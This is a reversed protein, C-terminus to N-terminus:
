SFKVVAFILFAVQAAVLSIWVKQRLRSRSIDRKFQMQAAIVDLTFEPMVPALEAM